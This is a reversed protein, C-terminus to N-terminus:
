IQPPPGRQHNCLIESNSSSTPLFDAAPIHNSVPLCSSGSNPPVASPDGYSACLACEGADSGAHTAAHAVGLVQSAVFVIVLLTRLLPHMLLVPQHELYIRARGPKLLDRGVDTDAEL